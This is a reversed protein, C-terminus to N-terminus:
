SLPGLEYRDLRLNVVGLTTCCLSLINSFSHLHIELSLCVAQLFQSFRGVFELLSHVIRSTLHSAIVLSVASFCRWFFAAKPL